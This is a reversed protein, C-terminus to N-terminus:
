LLLMKREVKALFAKRKKDDIVNMDYLQLWTTKCKTNFLARLGRTFLRKCPNSMVVMWWWPSGSSTVVALRKVHRICSSTTQGLKEAPQFTVGPLWVRDLWGKLIAPPGFYWTPFVFVLGEAWKLNEVHESVNSIVLDTNEIYAEREERSLVPQFNEAYLDVVRLNHGAKSLADKVVAFIAANFSTPVPHAYVILINM